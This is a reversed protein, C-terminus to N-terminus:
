NELCNERKWLDGSFGEIISASAWPMLAFWTSAPTGDPYKEVVLGQCFCFRESMWGIRGYGYEKDYSNFTQLGWGITDNMRKEIYSDEEKDLFYLMEDVITSSMPHIHPNAVSTISGGCSSWGIDSLPKVKIPTNYGLKYSFEYYLGYRLHELYISDGTIEHMIRVARVYALIGENDIAKDTDLPGGYCQLKKVFNEYYHNESQKLGELYCEEGTIQCYLATATMCWAGGLSDYEIGAGTKESMSFPYEGDTNKITNFKCIVPKVFSLWDEHMVNREEKESLYSKLIYYVAQGNIYGSHGGSHMGQYWWGHTSWIGDAVADYLLGSTENYSHALVENMFCLAQQRMKDDKLRNAAMLMPCAVALGNTWSLSGIKNYTYGLPTDHVFGTYMRDEEIFAYDRIAGALLQTAKTVTMGEISRPAEHYAYYVDKLAEYIALENDGEYDYVKLSFSIQEGAKVTISNEKTLQARECVTATQIFLYPADEYGLTYGVFTIDDEGYGCSFGTYQCFTGDANKIYPDASIGVIRNENMMLSLPDALRDARTMWFSSTPCEEKHKKIRPFKKRGHDPMDATNDGYMFGPMFFFPKSEEALLKVHIIGIFDTDLTNSVVIEYQKGNTIRDVEKVDYSLGYNEVPLYDTSDTYAKRAEFIMSSM